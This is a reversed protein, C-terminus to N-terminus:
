KQRRPAPLSLRVTRSTSASQYSTVLTDVAAVRHGRHKEAIVALHGPESQTKTTPAPDPDDTNM